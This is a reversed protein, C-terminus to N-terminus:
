TDSTLAAPESLEGKPSFCYSTSLQARVVGGHLIGFTLFRAVVCTAALLLCWVSLSQNHLQLLGLLYCRWPQGVVRYGSLIHRRRLQPLVEVDRVTPPLSPLFCHLLLRPPPPLALSVGPMM